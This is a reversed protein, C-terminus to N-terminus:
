DAEIGAGRIVKGWREVEDRLFRGFDESSGPRPVVGMEALLTRLQPNDLAKVTEANLRAVVERPTRAPAVLGWWVSAQYGPLGAERMTPVTGLLAIRETSSVALARLRNARLQPLVEVTNHLMVTIRGGLLDTLAPAGGKYPVHLLNVGAAAKFMEGALHNSSGNGASGYTLRGPERKAAAILDDVSQLPSGVPVVMVVPAEGVRAVPAFDRLADFSLTPFLTVNTALGNAAMLLTYGDPAARAVAETGLNASAGPRNDIVVQQGLQEALRQGVARAIADVAGGPAFPVVIHVPRQPWTQAPLSQAALAIALSSLALLLRRM